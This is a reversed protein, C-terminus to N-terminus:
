RRDAPERHQEAGVVQTNEHAPTTPRTDVPRSPDRSADKKADSSRRLGLAGGLVWFGFAAVAIVAVIIFLLFPAAGGEM